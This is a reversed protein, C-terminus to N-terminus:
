DWNEDIFCWRPLCLEHGQAQEYGSDIGATNKEMFSKKELTLKSIVMLKMTVMYAWLQHGQAQECGSGTSVTTKEKYLKKEKVHIKLHGDAQYHAHLSVALPGPSTWLWQRYRCHNKAQLNIKREISNQAIL